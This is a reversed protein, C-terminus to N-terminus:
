CRTQPLPAVGASWWGLLVRPIGALDPRLVIRQLGERSTLAQVAAAQGAGLELAAFGGPRVLRPLRGAITRYADLGDAGGDLALHPDHARVELALGAIDAAPIYPPNAVVVDFRERPVEAYDGRLWTIRDSMGHREGNRRATDIAGAALDIGVGRAQPLESMLAILIVGSGTGLDCITGRWGSRPEAIHSLVADVLTETDPRPVLTDPGVEFELGWFERTGVIRAVPCGDAREGVAQRFREFVDPDLEDQAGSVLRATNCGSAWELLLRADLGPTEAGSDGLRKTAAALAAQITTM